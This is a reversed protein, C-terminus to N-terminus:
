KVVCSRTFTEADQVIDDALKGGEPTCVDIDWSRFLTQTISLPVTTPADLVSCISLVTQLAVVRDAHLDGKIRRITDLVETSRGLAQAFPNSM